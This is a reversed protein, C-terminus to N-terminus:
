LAELGHITSSSRDRRPLEITIRYNTSTTILEPGIMKEMSVIARFLSAGSNTDYMHIKQCTSTKPTTNLAIGCPFLKCTFVRDVPPRVSADM